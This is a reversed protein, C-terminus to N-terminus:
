LIDGRPGYTRALQHATGRLIIDPEAPNRTPILPDALSQRVSAELNDLGAGTRASVPIIPAGLDRALSELDVDVKHQMLVDIMNALILLPKGARACERVVQLAFYLSKELRTVDIVCLVLGLSPDEIAELFQDVAVREEGSIAQLSYTGPYDYLVVDDFGSLRGSAIEVTIGPFNAVRHQL